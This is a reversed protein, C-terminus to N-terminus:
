LDGRDVQSPFTSAPGGRGEVVDLDANRSAFILRSVDSPPVSLTIGIMADAGSMLGASDVLQVVQVDRGVVVTRATPQGSDFTALVDVRDGPRLAGGVSHEPAVPVTVLSGAGASSAAAGRPIMEGARVSRSLTRGTLSLSAPAYLDMLSTSLRVESVQLDSAGIPEGAAMDRAAVWVRTTDNAGELIGNGAVFAVLLLVAGLTTRLNLWAPREFRRAVPVDIM